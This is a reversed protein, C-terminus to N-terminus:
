IAPHINGLEGDKHKKNAEKNLAKEHGAPTALLGAKRREKLRYSEGRINIVTSHHLLRDLVATALIADGFTSGWDSFSKNSTLITSGREYRATVLQFFLTAGVEDLPLYGIEDVVLVKPTIFARLRQPLRNARAARGLDSVLDQVTIFQASFGARIAETTLAVALHTKGVGPPGLFLVNGAEHVFRLTRLERIEREDISPQFTFDFQELSKRFPLRARKLANKLRTEQRTRAEAELLDLLFDAYPRDGQAARQLHPELLVDAEHLNLECLAAHLRELLPPRVDLSIPTNVNAM